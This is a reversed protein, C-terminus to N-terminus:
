SSTTHILRIQNPPDDPNLSLKGATHWDIGSKLYYQSHDPTRWIEPFYHYGFTRLLICTLTHNWDGRNKGLFIVEMGLQRLQHLIALSGAEKEVYNIEAVTKMEPIPEFEHLKFVLDLHVILKKTSKMCQSHYPKPGMTKAETFSYQIAPENPLFHISPLHTLIPALPKPSSWKSILTQLGKYLLGLLVLLLIIPAM